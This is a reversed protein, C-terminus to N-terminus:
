QWYCYHLSWTYESTLTVNSSCLTPAKLRIPVILSDSSKPIYFESHLYVVFTGLVETYIM